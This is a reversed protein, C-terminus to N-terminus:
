ALSALDTGTGGYAVKVPIQLDITTGTVEVGVGAALLKKLLDPLVAQLEELQEDTM